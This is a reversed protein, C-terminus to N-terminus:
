FMRKLDAILWYDSPSLDPSYPPHQLLKFHLEHLKTMMAILKHCLVNDQHFLVKKNM